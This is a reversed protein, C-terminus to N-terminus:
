ERSIEGSPAHSLFMMALKDAEGAFAGPFREPPRKM